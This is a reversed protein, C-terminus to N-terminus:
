GRAVPDHSRSALPNEAPDILSAAAVPEGSSREFHEAVADADEAAFVLDAAPYGAARFAADALATDYVTRM